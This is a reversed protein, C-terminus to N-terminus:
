LLRRRARSIMGRAATAQVARERLSDVTGVAEALSLGTGPRLDRSSRGYGAEKLISADGGGRVWAARDPRGEARSEQRSSANLAQTTALHGSERMPAQGSADGAGGEAEPPSLTNSSLLGGRFTFLINEPYPDSVRGAVLAFKDPPLQCWTPQKIDPPTMLGLAGRSRISRTINQWREDCVRRCVHGCM